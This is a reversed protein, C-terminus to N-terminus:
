IRRSSKSKDLMTIPQYLSNPVADSTLRGGVCGPDVDDVDVEPPVAVVAVVVGDDDDWCCDDEDLFKFFRLPCCLKSETPHNSAIGVTPLFKV